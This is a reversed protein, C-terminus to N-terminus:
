SENWRILVINNGNDNAVRLSITPNEENIYMGDFLKHKTEIGIVYSTEQYMKLFYFGPANIIPYHTAIVIHKAKIKGKDTYVKYSDDESKITFAKTQEYIKGKNKLIKNVLEKLYKRPNFMAQNEFKIAGIFKEM